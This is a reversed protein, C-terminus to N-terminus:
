RVNEPQPPGLEYRLANVFASRYKRLIAHGCLKGRMPKRVNKPFLRLRTM